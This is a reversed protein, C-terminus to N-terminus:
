MDVVIGTEECTTISIPRYHSKVTDGDNLAHLKLQYLGSKLILTDTLKGAGVTKERLTGDPYIIQLHHAEVTSSFTLHATGLEQYNCHFDKDMTCGIILATLGM